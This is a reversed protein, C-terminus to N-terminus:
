LNPQYSTDSPVIRVTSRDRLGNQGVVIVQDGSKVGDLIEFNRSDSYGLTLRHKRAITDEVTFAYPLGNEYIIADKPLLTANPHTDLIIHANVFMGPRLVSEDNRIGVTVLLTGSEADIVPSMRKIYGTFEREPLFDSTIVVAQRPDLKNVDKQPVNIKVIKQRMDVITFLKTSQQILDGIKCVRTAITGTIPAKVDTYELDTKASEWNLRAEEQTYRAGEIDEESILNEHFMKQKRAYEAKLKEYQVKAKAEAWKQTEADLSVLVDGKTVRRGEETNLTNIIGSALPHVDVAEETEVTASLLLTSTISGSPIGDVEVPIRQDVVTKASDKAVADGTGGPESSGCGTLATALAIFVFGM